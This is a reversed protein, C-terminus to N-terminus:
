IYKSVTFYCLLALPATLAFGRNLVSIRFLNLLRPCMLIVCGDQVCPCVKLEKTTARTFIVEVRYFPTVHIYSIRHLYLNLSATYTYSLISARERLWQKKPFAILIVYVSHTGTAKTVWYACTMRRM